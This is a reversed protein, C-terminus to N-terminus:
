LDTKSNFLPRIIEKKSIYKQLEELEKIVADWNMKNAKSVTETTKPKSENIKKLQKKREIGDPLKMVKTIQDSKERTFKIGNLIKWAKNYADISNQLINEKEINKSRYYGKLVNILGNLAIVDLNDRIKELAPILDQYETTSVWPIQQKNIFGPFLVPNFYKTCLIPYNVSNINLRKDTYERNFYQIFDMPVALISYIYRLTVSEILNEAFGKIYKEYLSYRNQKIVDRLRELVRPNIDEGAFDTMKHKILYLYFQKRLVTEFRQYITDILSRIQNRYVYLYHIAQDFSRSKIHEEVSENYKILLLELLYHALFKEYIKLKPDDEQFRNLINLTVSLYNNRSLRIEHMFDLDSITEEIMIDDHDDVPADDKHVIEMVEQILGENPETPESTVTVKDDVDLEKWALLEEIEKDTINFENKHIETFYTNLLEDISEDEQSQHTGSM